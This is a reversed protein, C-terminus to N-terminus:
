PRVKLACPREDSHENLGVTESCRDGLRQSREGVRQSDLASLLGFLHGSLRGDFKHRRQTEKNKRGHAYDDHSRCQDCHRIKKCMEQLLLNPLRILGLHVISLTVSIRTIAAKRATHVRTMRM